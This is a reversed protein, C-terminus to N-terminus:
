SKCFAFRLAFIDKGKFFHSIQLCTLGCINENKFGANVVSKSKQHYYISFSKQNIKANQSFLPLKNSRIIISLLTNLNLWPRKQISIRPKGCNSDEWTTGKKRNLSFLHRRIIQKEHIRKKKTEKKELAGWKRLYFTLFTNNVTATKFIQKFNAAYYVVTNFPTVKM